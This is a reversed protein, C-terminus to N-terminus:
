ERYARWGGGVVPCCRQGRLRTPGDSVLGSCAGQGSPQRLNPPLSVAICTLSVWGGVGVGQSDRCLGQQM